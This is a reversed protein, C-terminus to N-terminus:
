FRKTQDPAAICEPSNLTSNTAFSTLLRLFDEHDSESLTFLGKSIDACRRNYTYSEDEKQNFLLVATLETPYTDIKLEM